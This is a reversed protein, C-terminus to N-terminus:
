GCICRLDTLTNDQNGGATGIDALDPCSRPFVLHLYCCARTCMLIYAATSVPPLYEASPLVGPRGFAASLRAPKQGGACPALGGM